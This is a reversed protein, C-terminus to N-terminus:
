WINKQIYQSNNLAVKVGKFKVGEKILMQRKKKIGGAGSYGTLSGDSAVVRHCPTDPADPNIRMFYGVARAAKPKGALKAIQGYTAVKGRPISWCIKYVKDKFNM